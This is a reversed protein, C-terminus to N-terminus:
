KKKLVEKKETTNYPNKEDEERLINRLQMLLYGLRNKGKGNGGDGWYSDKVTHEVLIADNTALLKEKLKWNQSFKAYIAKRMVDEKVSEWDERLPSDKSRGLSAAITPTSATRITEQLVPDLFKMAQYYHESTPWEKGDLILRTAYFNSFEYCPLHRGYFQIIQQQMPSNTDEM